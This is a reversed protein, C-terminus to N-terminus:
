DIKLKGMIPLEKYCQAWRGLRSLYRQAGLDKPVPLVTVSKGDNVRIVSAPIIISCTVSFYESGM